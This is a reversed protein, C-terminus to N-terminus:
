SWRLWLVLQVTHKPKDAAMEELQERCKEQEQQAQSPWGRRCFEKQAEVQESHDTGAANHAEAQEGHDAGGANHAEVQERHGTAAANTRRWTNVMTQRM